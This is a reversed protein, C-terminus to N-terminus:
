NRELEEKAEEMIGFIEAVYERIRKTLWLMSKFEKIPFPTTAESLWCDMLKQRVEDLHDAELLTLNALSYLENISKKNM